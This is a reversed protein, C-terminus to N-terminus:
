ALLIAPIALIGAVRAFQFLAGAWRRRRALARTTSARREATRGRGQGAPRVAAAIIPQARLHEQAARRTLDALWRRVTCGRADFSAASRWVERFATAVVEDA